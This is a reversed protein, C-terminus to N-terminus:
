YQTTHTRTRSTNPMIPWLILIIPVVVCKYKVYHDKTYFYDKTLNMVKVDFFWWTLWLLWTITLKV